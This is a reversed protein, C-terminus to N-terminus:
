NESLLVVEQWLIELDKLPLQNVLITKKITAPVYEDLADNIKSILRDVTFDDLTRIMMLDDNIQRFYHDLVEGARRFYLIRKDLETIYADLQQLLRLDYAIRPNGIANRYSAVQWRNKEHRIEAAYGDKLAALQGRMDEAREIKEALKIRLSAIEAVKRQLEASKFDAGTCPSSFVLWAMGVGIVSILGKKMM